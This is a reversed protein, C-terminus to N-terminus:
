HFSGVLYLRKGKVKIDASPPTIALTLIKYKNLNEAFKQAYRCTPVGRNGLNEKRSQEKVTWVREPVRIVLVLLESISIKGTPLEFSSFDLPASNSSAPAGTHSGFHPEFIFAQFISTLSPFLIILSKLDHRARMSLRVKLVRLAHMSM